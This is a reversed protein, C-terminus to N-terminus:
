TAIQFRAARPGKTGQRVDDVKAAGVARIVSYATPRSVSLHAALDAATRPRRLFARADSIKTTDM